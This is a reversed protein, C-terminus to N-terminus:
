GAQSFRILASLKDSAAHNSIAESALAAGQKLDSAVGAVYLAAAANLVVIDRAAGAQDQLVGCVLDLSQAADEVILSDLSQSQIGLDEPCITYQSIEGNKLEAVQTPTALSIEDMGDDAHIVMAHDSGLNHLVEALPLLLDSSFVGLLQKKAGAPNTLPGLVNFLTRVGLSKRAGIAHKMASHHAPAFMFGLGVENICAAVQEPNLNLNVGATELLDASGSRSSVSRNGHKAVKAGAAAAVISTATSINFTNLGDGGTGVIDVVDSSDVDVKTALSRMVEAGATIESVVEGKMRLAALFAGIQADDAEGTMIGQMVKTMETQSLDNGAFLTELTSKMNM